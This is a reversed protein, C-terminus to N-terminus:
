ARTRGPAPTLRDILDAHDPHDRKLAAAAPETILEFDEWDFGPSVTCGLLAYGLDADAPDICAGQWVGAPAVRQPRHGRELDSGIIVTQAHAGDILLQTVPDGAYHHFVEDSRVRHLASTEGTRLIYYIQTSCHRPRASEFPLADPRITSPARYTERFGGGEYPLRELGLIEIVRDASPAVHPM